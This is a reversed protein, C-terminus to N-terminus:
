PAEARRVPGDRLPLHGPRRRDAGPGRKGRPGGGRRPYGGAQRSRYRGRLSPIVCYACRNDCGEAIKLYATYFAAHDGFAPARPSRCSSSARVFRCFPTRGDCRRRAGGPVIQASAAAAPLVADITRFDGKVAGGRDRQALCGACSSSAWATGRTRSFRRGRLFNEAPRRRPPSDIFGCTNIVVADANEIEGTM